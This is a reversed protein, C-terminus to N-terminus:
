ATAITKGGEIYKIVTRPCLEKRNDLEKISAALIAIGDTANTGKGFEDILLLSRSTSCKLYISLSPLDQLLVPRELKYELSFESMVKGAGLQWYTGHFVGFGSAQSIYKKWQLKTRDTCLECLPHRGDEIYIVPEQVIRPECYNREIAIMAFGLICDLAATVKCTDILQDDFELLKERVRNIIAFERDCIKGWIDGVNEDLERMRGSKWYVYEETQFHMEMGPIAVNAVNPSAVLYGLQPFFVVSIRLGEMSDPLDDVEQQAVDELFQGLSDYNRKDQDLEEDVGKAVSIRKRVKSKKVSTTLNIWDSLSASSNRMRALVRPVDKVFRLQDQLALLLEQNEQGIFFRLSIQRDTIEQEKLIPRLIWMRLLKKGLISRTNDMLNLLSLGEKAKGNVLTSPHIDNCLIQLSHLTEKDVHLYDKLHMMRASYVPATWNACLEDEAKHNHLHILLAGACCVAQVAELDVVSRLCSERDSDIVCFKYVGLSLAILRSKGYEYKFDRQPAIQIASSWESCSSKVVDELRSSTKSCIVVSTPRWQELLMTTSEFEDSELTQLLSLEGRAEDFVAAGLVSSAFYLCMHVQDIDQADEQVAEGGQEERDEGRSDEEASM